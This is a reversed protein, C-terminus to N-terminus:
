LHSSLLTTGETETVRDSDNLAFERDSTEFDNAYSQRSSVDVHEPPQVGREVLVSVAVPTVMCGEEGNDLTTRYAARYMPLEYIAENSSQVTAKALRGDIWVEYLSGNRRLTVPICGVAENAKIPTTNAGQLESTTLKQATWEETSDPLPALFGDDFENQQEHWVSSPEDVYGKILVPESAM